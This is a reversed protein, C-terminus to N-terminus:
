LAAGVLKPSLAPDEMLHLEPLAAILEPTLRNSGGCSLRVLTRSRPTETAQKIEGCSLALASALLGQGVHDFDQCVTTLAPDCHLSVETNNFGVIAFDEPASLGRKHMATMFRMAYTDDYSVVALDGRYDAWRVALADISSSESDVFGCINPLTEKAVFHSYGSLKQQLIVNSPADPGLLAIRGHGLMRLYRCLAMTVKIKNSGFIQRSEFCNDELGPILMPLSVPVPLEKVFPVVERAQEIPFWPMTMAACDEKALEIAEKIGRKGLNSIWTSRLEVSQDLAARALAQLVKGAYDNGDRYVLVGIRKKRPGGDSHNARGREAVFTGSGVQRVILGDDVLNKLAKRVTLFNCNYSTAMSRESPLKAGPPLTEVIQRLEGEIRKFILQPAHGPM